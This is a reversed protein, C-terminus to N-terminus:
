MHCLDCDWGATLMAQNSGEPPPVADVHQHRDDLLLEFQIQGQM